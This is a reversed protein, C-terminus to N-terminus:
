VLAYEGIHPLSTGTKHLVSKSGSLLLQKVNVRLGANGLYIAKGRLMGIVFLENLGIESNRLRGLMPLALRVQGKLPRM